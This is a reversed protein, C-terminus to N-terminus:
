AYLDLILELLKLLLKNKIVYVPSNLIEEFTKDPGPM